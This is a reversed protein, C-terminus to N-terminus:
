FLDNIHLINLLHLLAYFIPILNSTKHPRLQEKANRNVRFSHSYSRAPAKYSTFSTDGSCKSVRSMCSYIKSLVSVFVCFILTHLILNIILFVSQFMLFRTDSRIFQLVFYLLFSEFISYDKEFFVSFSVRIIFSIEFNYANM